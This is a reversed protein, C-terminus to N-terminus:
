ALLNLVPMAMEEKLHSHDRSPEILDVERVARVALEAVQGVGL